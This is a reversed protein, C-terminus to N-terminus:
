KILGNDFQIYNEIRDEPMLWSYDDNQFAAIRLVEADRICFAFGIVACLSGKYNLTFIFLSSRHVM